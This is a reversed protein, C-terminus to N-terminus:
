GLLILKQYFNIRDRRLEYTCYYSIQRHILSELKNKNLLSFIIIEINNVIYQMIKILSIAKIKTIACQHSVSIKNMFYNYFSVQFLIIFILMCYIYSEVRIRNTKEAIETIRLHSKWIKFIIEIRWRIFYFAAVDKAELEEKRLNTIFIEWGLLYLNKKSPKYRSDRQSNLKRRRQAAVSEEVPFAILRVPLREEQGIFVEIDLSGRRKLMKALDIEKGDTKTMIKIKKRMRSIYQIGQDNLKKFVKLIFYGLDRIILDGKKAIEFIDESYVFDNKRFNTISFRIFRNRKLEYSTQIKLIAKDEKQQYYRNGPYYGSLVKNLKIHTSDELIIRKFKKVKSKLKETYQEKIQGKLLEALVGQLFKIQSEQMRKCLAQKSVTDKIILGIKSAWNKYSNGESSFVMLFFGLLFEKPTIKRAQRQCFKSEKSIKKFPIKNLKRKIIKYNDEREKKSNTRM